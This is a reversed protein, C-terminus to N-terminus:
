HFLKTPSLIDDFALCKFNAINNENFICLHCGIISLNIIKGKKMFILKVRMRSPFSIQVIRLERCLGVSRKSPVFQSKTSAFRM